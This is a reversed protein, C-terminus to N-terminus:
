KLPASFIKICQADQEESLQMEALKCAYQCWTQGGMAEPAKYCVDEICWEVTEEHKTGAVIQKILMLRRKLENKQEVLQDINEEEM